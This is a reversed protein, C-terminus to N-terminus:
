GDFACKSFMYAWFFSVSNGGISLLFSAIVKVEIAGEPKRGFLQNGGRTLTNARRGRSTPGGETMGNGEREEEGEGQARLWLSLRLFRSNNADFKLCLLAPFYDDAFRAMLLV